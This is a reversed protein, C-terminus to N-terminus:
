AGGGRPAPPGASGGTGAPGAGRGAGSAGAPGNSAGSGHRADLADRVVRALEDISCPKKLFSRVGLSRAEEPSTLETYGSTLVVALDPRERLLERALDVGTMGPMTVDALVLDFGEPSQRFRELAEDGDRAVTVHYGLSELAMRVSATLARDDDALLVCETGTPRERRVAGEGEAGVWEPALPLFVRFTSGAGPESQVRVAGGQWTVINRVVALGLGSGSGNRKTTFFPDFIKEIFEPTMGTGTDSVALEVYRGSVLEPYAPFDEDRVDREAVSLGLVGGKNRMAHAANTCLNMVVQHAQTPDALILGDGSADQFDIRITAPLSPRLLKVCERVISSLRFPVPEDGERRRGLNLIQEVLASAREAAALIEAFSARVPHDEDLAELGLEAHLMIPALVNNFDHAIGGALTGIAEMKQATRLQRELEATDTVDRWLSVYGLAVGRQGRIPSVTKECQFVTGDKRTNYSRGTWVDGAELTEVLMRFQRQQNAGQYLAAISQGRIESQSYGTMAEFTQNIFAISFDSELIIIAEAAQEIATVLRIREEEAQKRETIDRALVVVSRVQGSESSVPTLRVELVGGLHSLEEFTVTQATELVLDLYRKRRLAHELPFFDFINEGLLEDPTLRLRRAMAPNSALIVGQRDVLLALDTTASFLEKFITEM